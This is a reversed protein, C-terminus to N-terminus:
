MVTHLSVSQLQVTKHEDPLISWQMKMPTFYSYCTAPKQDRMQSADVKIFLRYAKCIISAVSITCKNKEQVEKLFLFM